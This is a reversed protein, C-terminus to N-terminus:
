CWGGKDVYYLGGFLIGATIAWIFSLRAVQILLGKKRGSEMLLSIIVAVLFISGVTIFFPKPLNLVLTTILLLGGTFFAALSSMFFAALSSM